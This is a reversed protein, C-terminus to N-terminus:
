KSVYKNVMEALLSIDIPKSLHVTMGANMSKQVDESFANATLAVIPIQGARPHSSSRIARAAEYGNMVPMRIDMLIMDYEEPESHEFKEVVQKGDTYIDCEAGERRM